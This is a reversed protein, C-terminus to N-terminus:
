FGNTEPVSAKKKIVQASDIRKLSRRSRKESDARTLLSRSSEELKEKKEDSHTEMGEDERTPQNGLRRPEIKEKKEATKVVNKVSRAFIKPQSTTTKARTKKVSKDQRMQFHTSSLNLSGSRRVTSRTKGCM